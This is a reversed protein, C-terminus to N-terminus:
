EYTVEGSSWVIIVRTRQKRAYRVTAWTGSRREERNKPAAVLIDSNDVINHNREFYPRAPRIEQAFCFARKKSNKPPHIVTKCRWQNGFGDVVRAAEADAGVCDGHSFQSPRLKHLLTRLSNRQAISMGQRAGTFGVREAMARRREQRGVM